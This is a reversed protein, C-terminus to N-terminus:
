NGRGRLKLSFPFTLKQDFLTFIFGSGGRALNLIGMKPHGMTPGKWFYSKPVYDNGPFLYSEARPSYVTKDQTRSVRSRIKERM